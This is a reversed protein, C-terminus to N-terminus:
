ISVGHWHAAFLRSYRGKWTRIEIGDIDYRRKPRVQMLAAHDAYSLYMVKPKWKRDHVMKIVAKLIRQEIPSM